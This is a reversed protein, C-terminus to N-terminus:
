KPTNIATAGDLSGPITWGAWWRDAETSNPKVAGIYSTADFVFNSGNNVPTVDTVITNAVAQTNTVAWYQDFQMSGEALTAVGATATVGFDQDVAPTGRQSYLKGDCLADQVTVNSDEGSRVEICGHGWNVMAVKAITSNVEGRLRMAPQSNVLGLTNGVITVNAIAANTESVHSNSSKDSNAEIGRPDNSGSPATKTQNKVILVHQINGKYGEDYDVDDDDNGTLVLYKANVTGGFWEVGDDLNNHVQVYEITTGHGVGMLTLGNIENDQVGTAKGAEAIAVYRIVGSNDADDDGGFRGVGDGGEGQVNCFAGNTHCVGNNAKGYHSAFGQVIVGGWEGEGDFGEDLSSFWIPADAQGDAMLKSGRTVILVGNSLARIHVGPEITLTVGNAKATAVDTATKLEQNGSGVRVQGIMRWDIKDGNDNKLRITYDQSVTGELTCVTEAGNCAVFSTELAPPTDSNDSSSSGGCGVLAASVMAVALYGKKFEMFNEEEPKNLEPM